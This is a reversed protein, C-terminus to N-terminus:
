TNPTPLAASIGSCGQSGAAITAGVGTLASSCATATTLAPTNAMRLTATEIKPTSVRLERPWDAQSVATAEAVTSVAEM